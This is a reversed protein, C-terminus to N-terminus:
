AHGRGKAPMNEVKKKEPMNEISEEPNQVETKEVPTMHSVETTFDSWCQAFEEEWECSLRFYELRETQPHVQVWPPGM